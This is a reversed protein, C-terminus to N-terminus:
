RVVRVVAADVKCDDDDCEAAVAVAPCAVVSVAKDDEDDEDNDAFSAVWDCDGDDTDDSSVSALPPPVTAM